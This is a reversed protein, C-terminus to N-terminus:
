KLEKEIAQITPCPWVFECGCGLCLTESQLRSPKHVKVVACLAKQQKGIDSMEKFHIIKNLLEDHTM